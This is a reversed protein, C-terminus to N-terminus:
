IESRPAKIVGKAKPKRCFKLPGESRGHFYYHTEGAALILQVGPILQQTYALGKEPCGLSGDSWTVVRKSVVSIASSAVSIEKALDDIAGQIQSDTKATSKENEENVYKEEPLAHKQGAEAGESGSLCAQFMPLGLLCLSLKATLGIRGCSFM